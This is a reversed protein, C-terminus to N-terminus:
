IKENTKCQLHLTITLYGLKTKANNRNRWQKVYQHIAHCWARGFSKVVRPGSFIVQSISCQPLTLLMCTITMFIRGTKQECHRSCSRPSVGYLICLQYLSIHSVLFFVRIRIPIVTKSKHLEYPSFSLLARGKLM